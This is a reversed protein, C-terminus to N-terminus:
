LNRVGTCDYVCRHFQFDSKQGVRYINWLLIYQIVHEDSATM